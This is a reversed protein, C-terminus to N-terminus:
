LLYEMGFVRDLTELKKVGSNYIASGQPVVVM